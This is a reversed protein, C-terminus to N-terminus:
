FKLIMVNGKTSILERFTQNKLLKIASNQVASTISSRILSFLSLYHTRFSEPSHATAEGLTNYRYESPCVSYFGM